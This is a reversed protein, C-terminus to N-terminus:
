FLYIADLDIDILENMQSRDSHTAPLLVGKDPITLEKTVVVRLHLRVGAKTKRFTAWPYQSLSMSMTSSDIVHLRTIDRVFPSQCTLQSQVKMALHRFVKEFLKSIPLACTQVGTVNRVRIVDEAQFFFVLRSILSPHVILSAM